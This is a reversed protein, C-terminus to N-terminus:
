GLNGTAGSSALGGAFDDELGIELIVVGNLECGVVVENAEVFLFKLEAVPHVIGWVGRERVDQDAAVFQVVGQSPGAFKALPEVLRFM